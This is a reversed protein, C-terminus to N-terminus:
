ESGADSDNQSDANEVRDLIKELTALFSRAEAVPLQEAVRRVEGLKTAEPLRRVLDLGARSLGIRVVRRDAPDRERTVLGDRVLRDVIGSTTSERLYIARSLASLALPEKAKVLAILADIQPATVGFKERLIHTHRRSARDLRILADIIRDATSETTTSREDAAM